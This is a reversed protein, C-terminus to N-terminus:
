RYKRMIKNIRKDNAAFVRQVFEDESTPPPNAPTCRDKISAIGYIAGIGLLIIIPM